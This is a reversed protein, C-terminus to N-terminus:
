RPVLIITKFIKLIREIRVIEEETLHLKRISSLESMVSSLPRKEVIEFGAHRFFQEIDDETSFMNGEIDRGTVNSLGSLRKRVADFSKTLRKVSEKSEVDSTIWVGGHRSIIKRINRALLIKETRNLYPLLGETIVAVSQEARFHSSASRLSKLDLANGAQFHLNSRHNKSKSLIEKAINKEEQVMSPLDTVVYVVSPNATMELGRPSLGAAIELIQTIDREMIISNTVKYRAEWRPAFRLLSRANEGALKKFTQQASSEEAIENAFPIDSFTRLYAVFKATPSIKDYPQRM